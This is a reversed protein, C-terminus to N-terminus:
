HGSDTSLAESLAVSARICAERINNWDRWKGALHRYEHIKDVQLDYPVPKALQIALQMLASQGQEQPYLSDFPRMAEVVGADGLSDALAAFDVYDRFANRRLILIGKIRLVEARTPITIHGGDKLPIRETELPSTRMLQRIGTDVGDLNGLILVPKNVRATKWGAVSELKALVEDFRERLDTIVHDADWSVRHGAHVASATGGVLVADPLLTQLRAAASLVEEWDVEDAM